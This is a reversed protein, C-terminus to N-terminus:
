YMFLKTVSLQWTKCLKIIFQSYTFL